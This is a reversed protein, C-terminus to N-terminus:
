FLTYIFPASAQIGVVVLSITLLLLILGSMTYARNAFGLLLVDRVMRTCWYAFLM